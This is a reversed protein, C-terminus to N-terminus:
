ITHTTHDFAGHVFARIYTVAHKKIDNLKTQEDKTFRSLVFDAADTTALHQNGIGIRVRAFNQGVAAIVSKLGNNGADSGGLRTRIVGFPLALEDHVVLIDQVAIKYFQVTAHVSDGVLNYMTTPKILTIREDDVMIEAVYAKFKDKKQWTASHESAYKDLAMFGVNHRTQAYHDGINGLGIILKM